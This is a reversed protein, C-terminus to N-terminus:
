CKFIIKSFKGSKAISFAENFNDLTFEHSILDLLKIKKNKVLEIAAPMTRNLSFAGYISLDKKYITYPSISIKKNVPCVGYFLIRAKNKAYNILKECVETIGTADVLIDFGEPALKKLNLDLKNDSILVGSAGFKKGFEIKEKDIDVMIVKSVGRINLLQLLITGIPGIGFIIATEGYNVKIKELGYIVCSLPELMAAERLDVNEILHLNKEKIASYEAFGGNITIGYGGYNSCFNQQNMKCYYCNGCELTPDVVVHDGKRFKTVSKGIKEVIGSFEHGPVIPFSNIFEGKFIHLDTGCFGAYHNKLLVEDDKIEPIEIDKIVFEYPKTFIIAKM